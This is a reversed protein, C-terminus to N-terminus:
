TKPQQEYPTGKEWLNNMEGLYYEYWEKNSPNLEITLLKSRDPNNMLHTVKIYGTQTKMDTGLFAAAPIIGLVRIEIQPHREYKKLYKISYNEPFNHGRFKLYMRHLAKNNHNLMLLRLKLHPKSMTADLGSTLHQIYSGSGIIYIENKAQEMIQLNPICDFVKKLGVDNKYHPTLEDLKAKIEDLYTIMITFNQVAILLFMSAIVKTSFHEFIFGLVLGVIGLALTILTIWNAKIKLFRKLTEIM